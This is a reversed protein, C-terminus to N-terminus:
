LINVVTGQAVQADFRSLTLDGHVNTREMIVLFYLSSDETLRIRFWGTRKRMLYDTHLIWQSQRRFASKTWVEISNVIGTFSLHIIYETRSYVAILPTRRQPGLDNFRYVAITTCGGPTPNSAARNANAAAPTSATRTVPYDRAEFIQTDLSLPVTRLPCPDSMDESLTASEDAVINADDPGFRSKLALTVNFTEFRFGIMFLLFRSILLM